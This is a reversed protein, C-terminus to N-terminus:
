VRPTVALSRNQLVLIQTRQAATDRRYFPTEVRSFLLRIGSGM